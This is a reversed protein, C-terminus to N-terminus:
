KLQFLVTAVSSCLNLDPPRTGYCAQEVSALLDYELVNQPIDESTINNSDLRFKSSFQHRLQPLATVLFKKAQKTSYQKSLEQWQKNVIKQFEKHANYNEFIPETLTKRLFIVFISSLFISFSFKWFPFSHSEVITKYSQRVENSANARLQTKNEEDLFTYYPSIPLLEAIKLDPPSQEIISGVLGQKFFFLTLVLFVIKM